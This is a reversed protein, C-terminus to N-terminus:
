SLGPSSSRQADGDCTVPGDGHELWAVVLTPGHLIIRQRVSSEEGVSSGEQGREVVAQVFGGHPASADFFRRWLAREDMKPSQPDTARRVIDKLVESEGASMDCIIDMPVRVLGAARHAMRVSM